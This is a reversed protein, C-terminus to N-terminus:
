PQRPCVKSHHRRCLWRVELPREYDPHHADAKEAGCVECPQRTLKGARIAIAVQSRARRKTPNARQYEKTAEIECQKCHARVPRKFRPDTRAYFADLPLIRNCKRCVATNADSGRRELKSCELCLTSRRTRRGNCRPCRYLRNVKGYGWHNLTKPSVGVIEGIRTLTMGEEQWWPILKDLQEPTYHTGKIRRVANM